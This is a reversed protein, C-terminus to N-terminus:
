TEEIKDFMSKYKTNKYYNYLEQYNKIFNKLKQPTNKYYNGKTKYYPINLFSYLKKHLKDENQLLESYYIKIKPLNLNNIFSKLESEIAVREILENNFKPIDIFLSKPIQKKNYANWTNWKKHLQQANLISVTLRIINKRTSYIIKIKNQELFNALWEKDAIDRLKTKFGLAKINNRKISYFHQIWEKQREAMLNKKNKNQTAYYTGIIEWLMKINPHSNLSSTLYSSGTRGEFLLIFKTIM